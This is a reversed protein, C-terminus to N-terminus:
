RGCRCGPAAPAPPAPPGTGPAAPHPGRSTASGGGTRRGAGRGGAAAVTGAPRRAQVLVGCRPILLMPQGIVRDPVRQGCPVGRPGGSQDLPMEVLDEPWTLPRRYLPPKRRERGPQGASPRPQAQHPCDERERAAVYLLGPRRQIGGLAREHISGLLRELRRGALGGAQQHVDGRRDREPTGGQGMEAAVGVARAANADCARALVQSPSDISSEVEVHSSATAWHSRPPTASASCAKAALM